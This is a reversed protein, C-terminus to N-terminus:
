RLNTAVQNQMSLSYPIYKRFQRFDSDSLYSQNEVDFFSQFGSRHLLNQIRKIHGTGAYVVVVPEKTRFINLLLELDESCHVLTNRIQHLNIPNWVTGPKFKLSNLIHTVQHEYWKFNSLVSKRIALPTSKNQIVEQTYRRLLHKKGPPISKLISEHLERRFPMKKLQNVAQNPRYLSDLLFKTLVKDTRRVRDGAYYKFPLCHEKCNSFEAAKLNIYTKHNSNLEPRVGQEWILPVPGINKSKKNLIFTKFFLDTQRLVKLGEQASEADSSHFDGILFIQKKWLGESKAMFNLKVPMARVSSSNTMLLIQAAFMMLIFGSLIVLRTKM